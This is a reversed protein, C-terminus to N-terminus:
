AHVTSHRLRRRFGCSLCCAPAVRHFTRWTSSRNDVAVQAPGPLDSEMFSMLKGGTDDLADLTLPPPASVFGRRGAARWMHPLTRCRGIEPIQPEHVNRAM